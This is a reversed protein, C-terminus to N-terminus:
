MLVLYYTNAVNPKSVASFSGKSTQGSETYLDGLNSCQSVCRAVHKLLELLDGLISDVCVAFNLLQYMKRGTESVLGANM